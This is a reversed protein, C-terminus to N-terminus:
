FSYRGAPLRLGVNGSCVFHDRFFPLPDSRQATGSGDKLHIRCAVAKRTASDQVTFELNGKESEAFAHNAMLTLVGLLPLRGPTKRGRDRFNLKLNLSEGS